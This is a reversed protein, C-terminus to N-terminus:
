ATVNEFRFGGVETMMEMKCDDTIAGKELRNFDDTDSQDTLDEKMFIGVTSFSPGSSADMSLKGPRALMYVVNDACIYNKSAAAGRNATNWVANEIIVNYGYLKVPIGAASYQKGEWHPRAEPSQIFANIMEQTVGIAQATRTNMVLHFDSQDLSSNTSLEIQEWAYNISRKIDTRATTSQDWRGSAGPITTVDIRHNADWNATNELEKHVRHVRSTVARMAAFQRKTERLPYSAMDAGRTGNQFSFSKRESKIRVWNTLEDNNHNNPREDGDAWNYQIDDGGALRVMDDRGFKLYYTIDKGDPIDLIQTYNLYAYKEPNRSYGIILDSSGAIYGSGGGPYHQVGPEGM